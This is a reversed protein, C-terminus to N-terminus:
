AAAGSRQSLPVAIIHRHSVMLPGLFRQVNLAPQRRHLKAGRDVLVLRDGPRVPARFPVNEMGRFLYDPVNALLVGIHWPGERRLAVAMAARRESESVVQEWSWSADLHRLGVAPDNRRAELLAAVLEDEEGGDGVQRLEFAQGLCQPSWRILTLM